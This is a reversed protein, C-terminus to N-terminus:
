GKREGTPFSFEPLYLYSFEGAEENWGVRKVTGIRGLHEHRVLDDKKFLSKSFDIQDAM